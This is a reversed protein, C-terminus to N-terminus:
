HFLWYLVWTIFSHFASSSARLVLAWKINKEGFLKMLRSAIQQAAGSEAVLKGLMAGCVIVVVLSGMMDGIGKSVSSAIKDAPIGLFLGGIISTALLALFPNVKLYAVLFVLFVISLFVITISM